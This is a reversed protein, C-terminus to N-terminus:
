WIGPVLAPIIDLLHSPPSSFRANSFQGGRVVVRVLGHRLRAM